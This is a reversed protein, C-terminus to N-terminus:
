ERTAVPKPAEPPPAGNPNRVMEMLVADPVGAEKLGVLASPSTDFRCVSTKMKALIVDPAVGARLMDSIDKNTVPNAPPSSGPPGASEQAMGVSFLCCVFLLNLLLKM